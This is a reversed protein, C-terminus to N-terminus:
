LSNTHHRQACTIGCYIVEPCGVSLFTGVAIYHPVPCRVAQRAQRGPTYRLGIYVDAFTIFSEYYSCLVAGVIAADALQPCRRDCSRSNSPDWPWHKPDNSLSWLPTPPAAQGIYGGDTRDKPPCLSVFGVGVRSRCAVWLQMIHFAYRGSIFFSCRTSMSKPNYTRTKLNPPYM